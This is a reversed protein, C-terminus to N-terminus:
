QEELLTHFEEISLPMTGHEEDKTSVQEDYDLPDDPNPSVIRTERDKFTVSFYREHKEPAEAFYEILLDVDDDENNSIFNKAKEILPGSGVSAIFLTSIISRLKSAVQSRLKYIEDTDGNRVREVLDRLQERTEYGVVQSGLALLEREKQKITATLENRRQELENLRQAVYDTALTAKAHLEFTRDRQDEIDGVEGRLSALENELDSRAKAQSESNIISALDVEKVFALFSAEFHEYRWGTKECGLGRKANECVLYTGGKPGSGKNHFKMKSKCYACRALGSFLNSIGSGKRGGLPRNKGRILRQSRSQQARYFLEGDIIRPYYDKIPDGDPVRKNDVLRHPQFEGLAARNALIKAVYSSHWGHSKGFVPLKAENLRRTIVHIGVGSACDDFISRVISAREEIVEFRKKDRSLKLWAPCTATLPKTKANARKSAWAAGVRQSKTQSEEHARSMIVLSCLLDELQDSSQPTYVRRDALTVINIGADLISLFISLSTRIKQRSLRDLSEVLLFSGAPIRGAKVAELFRGLAGGAVNAGRFASIGIDQLRSVDVLDYGNAAAYSASADLQRRLSDGKLQLDTSMRIYSYALPRNPRSNM